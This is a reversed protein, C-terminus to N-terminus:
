ELESEHREATALILKKYGRVAEEIEGVTIAEHNSHPVYFSGPGYLYRKVRGGDEREHVELAPVDTGYNVTIVDFGDVDADLHQPAFGAKYFDAYVSGDGGTVDEVAKEIIRRTDDPTGAALRIAIGAEASAPVVNHAVGGIVTGINLTSNGLIDSRLLGGEESPTTQLTDLHSLVPLIASIASKGLWPYGSHAAKGTAVLRFGLAGKHGAILSLNTPEGFIIAHFSSPSPNLDSSSFTKMGVGSNEEGVDLLLGLSTSPKEALTELAAFVIAAVSAKADVSGRGAILLDERAFSTSAPNSKSNTPAHLSYPIFPPVTDIHSTLIIDPHRDEGTYAYINFREPTTDSQPEVIQKEVTFNRSALFDIIFSGVNKENGSISEIKTIDRHFSLLPSSDIIHALDNSSPKKIDLSNQPTAIGNGSLFHQLPSPISLATTLAAFSLVLYPTKM